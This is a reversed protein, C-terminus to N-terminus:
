AQSSGLSVPPGREGRAPGKFKPLFPRQAPLTLAKPGSSGGDRGHPTAKSRLITEQGERVVQGPKLNAPPCGWLIVTRPGQRGSPAGQDGRAEETLPGSRTGFTRSNSSVEPATTNRVQSGALSRDVKKTTETARNERGTESQKGERRIRGRAERGGRREREPLKM